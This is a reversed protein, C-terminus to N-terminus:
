NDYKVGEARVCNSYAFEYASRASENFYFNGSSVIRRSYRIASEDCDKRVIGPYIIFKYFGIIGFILLTLFLLTKLLKNKISIM